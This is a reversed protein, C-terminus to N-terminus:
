GVLPADPVTVAGSKIQDLVKNVEATVDSPLAINGPAFGVGDNKASFINAGSKFKGDNADKIASFVATDVRKLASAIVSSDVDKQDADVGISYVKNQGAAQLAGNGCGGAVQFVVESGNAIQSNAIDRCKASDTFDNSYGNLLKIGPVELRAGWQYGAIYHDVPPIKRGGVTSITNTKKPTKGTKELMGAIVGVLAGAEQEKFLLSEVNSRPVSNFNDDTAGGDVVAFHINPFQQSVKGVAPQILFGVAVILDCKRTAFDTLNPVYDDASKSVKVEGQVGLDTKAKELGQNALQNFSKDNLGGTDAVLCMKKATTSGASSTGGCAALVPLLLMLCTALAVLRMRTRSM